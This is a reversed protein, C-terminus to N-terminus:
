IHNIWQERSFRIPLTSTNFILDETLAVEGKQFGRNNIFILSKFEEFYM